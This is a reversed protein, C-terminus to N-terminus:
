PCGGLLRWFPDGLQCLSTGLSGIVHFVSNFVSSNSVRCELSSLKGLPKAGKSSNNSKLSTTFLGFNSGTSVSTSSHFIPLSSLGIIILSDLVKGAWM